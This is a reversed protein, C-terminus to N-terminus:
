VQKGISKKPRSGTKSFFTYLVRTRIETFCRTLPINQYCFTSDRKIEHRWKKSFLSIKDNSIKWCTLHWEFIYISRWLPWHMKHKVTRQRPSFHMKHRKIKNKYLHTMLKKKKTGSYDRIQGGTWMESMVIAKIPAANHIKTLIKCM